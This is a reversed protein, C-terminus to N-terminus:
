ASGTCITEGPSGTNQMNLLPCVNLDPKESFRKKIRGTRSSGLYYEAPLNESDSTVNYLDTRTLTIDHTDPVYKKLIQKTVQIQSDKEIRFEIESPAIRSVAAAPYYLTLAMVSSITLVAASLLTLM